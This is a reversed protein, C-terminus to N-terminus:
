DPQGTAPDIRSVTIDLYDATYAGREKVVKGMSVESRLAKDQSVLIGLFREKVGITM